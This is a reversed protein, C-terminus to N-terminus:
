KGKHHIAPLTSEVKKTATTTRIEEEETVLASFLDEIIFKFELHLSESKAM